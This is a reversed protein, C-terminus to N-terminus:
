IFTNDPYVCTRRQQNVLDAVFKTAPQRLVAAPADCQQIKGQDLVLVRTGLKLAEDIDHTVFLITIGNERHIKHLEEQLQGRTIEDVAGFPEDMLLIEPGAALARAIGVRQRQGGSLTRPYRNALAPDLGVQALLASVKERRDQGKWGAMGSISPVYAINKEVTMHPFLGVSQIVYGIRRRLAVPDSGAVNKGQVLMRGSDPCVLGNVLKLATTKGCGSRGIITLLEGPFVDLSFNQLVAQDGFSKSVQEYRIIPEM